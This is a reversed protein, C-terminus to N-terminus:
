HNIGIGSIYLNQNSERPTRNQSNQLIKFISNGPFQVLIKINGSDAYIVSKTGVKQVLFIAWALFNNRNKIGSNLRHIGCSLDYVSSIM